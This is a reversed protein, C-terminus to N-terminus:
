ADPEQRIEEYMENQAENKTPVTMADDYTVEAGTIPKKAIQVNGHQGLFIRGFNKWNIVCTLFNLVLATCLVTFGAFREIHAADWENTSNEHHLENDAKKQTTPSLAPFTAHSSYRGPNYDLRLGDPCFDISNGPGRLPCNMNLASNGLTTNLSVSCSCNRELFKKYKLSFQDCIEDNEVDQYCFTYDLWSKNVNSGILLRWSLPESIWSKLDICNCHVLLYFLAVLVTLNPEFDM